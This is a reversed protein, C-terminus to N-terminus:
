GCGWGSALCNLSPLLSLAPVSPPLEPPVASRVDGNFRFERLVVSEFNRGVERRRTWNELPRTAGSTQDWSIGLRIVSGLQDGVSYLVGVWFGFGPLNMDILDENM